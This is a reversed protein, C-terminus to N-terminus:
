LSNRGMKRPIFYFLVLLFCFNSQHSGCDNILYRVNYRDCPVRVHGSEL